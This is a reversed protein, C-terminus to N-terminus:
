QLLSIFKNIDHNSFKYTNFFRKEFKEEFKKQYNKKCCLCKNEVLDDQFSKYELFDRYKYKFRCVEAKKDDYKYKCKVEHIGEALNNIVNALSSAMFKTSDIFQLRYSIAKTNKEENKVIKM